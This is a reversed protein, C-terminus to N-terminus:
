RFNTAAVDWSWPRRPLARTCGPRVTSAAHALDVSSHRIFVSGLALLIAALAPIGVLLAIPLSSVGGDRTWAWIVLGLVIIAHGRGTGRVLWGSDGASSPSQADLRLRAAPRLEAHYTAAPSLMTM